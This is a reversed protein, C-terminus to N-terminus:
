WIFDADVFATMCRTAHRAAPAECDVDHGLVAMADSKTCRQAPGGCGPKDPRPVSDDSGLRELELSTEVGPVRDCLYTGPHRENAKLM